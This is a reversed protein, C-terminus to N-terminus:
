EGGRQVYSKMFEEANEELDKDIEDVLADLAANREKEKALQEATKKIPKAEVPRVEEGKGKKVQEQKAM